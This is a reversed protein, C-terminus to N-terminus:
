QRKKFKFDTSFVDNVLYDLYTGDILGQGQYGPNMATWCLQDEAVEREMFSWVPRRMVPVPEKGPLILIKRVTDIEVEKRFFQGTFPFFPM